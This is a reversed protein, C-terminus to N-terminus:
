LLYFPPTKIKTIKPQLHSKISKNKNLINSTINIFFNNFENAIDVNNTITEGQANTIQKITQTNNKTNNTVENIIKWTKKIDKENNQFLIM